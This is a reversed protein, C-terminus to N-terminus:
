LVTVTRRGCRLSLGNHESERSVVAPVSLAGIRRRIEQYLHERKAEDM